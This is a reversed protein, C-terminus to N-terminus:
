FGRAARECENWLAQVTSLSSKLEAGDLSVVPTILWHASTLYVGDSNPLDRVGLPAEAAAFGFQPAIKL